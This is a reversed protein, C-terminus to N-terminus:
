SIGWYDARCFRKPLGTLLQPIKHLIQKDRSGAAAIEHLSPCGTEPLPVELTLKRRQEDPKEMAFLVLSQTARGTLPCLQSNTSSGQALCATERLKQCGTQDGKRFRCRRLVRGM